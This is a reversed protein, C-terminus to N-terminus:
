KLYKILLVKNGKESYILEDVLKRAFLIGFGGARMGFQQRYKMHNVPSDPPNSVAAHPLRDLSFGEGPDEVRYILLRDTRVCEIRVRQDPDFNGGHEMANLLMERFAIAIDEREEPPLDMKLSRLFHVVREATVRKCKVQLALWDPKSSLVEIGDTWDHLRLAQSIMEEVAAWDFPKLFFGFTHGQLAYIVDDTSSESTFVIVKTKSMCEHIKKLLDVINERSNQMDLLVLEFQGSGFYRPIEEKDSIREIELPISDSLSSLIGSIDPNEGVILIKKPEEM